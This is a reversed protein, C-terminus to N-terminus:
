LGAERKADLYVQAEEAHNELVHREMDALAAERLGEVRPDYVMTDACFHCPVGRLHYTM